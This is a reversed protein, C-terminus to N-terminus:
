LSIPESSLSSASKLGLSDNVVPSCCASAVCCISSQTLTREQSSLTWTLTCSKIFLSAAWVTAATVPFPSCVTVRQLFSKRYCHQFMGQCHVLDSCSVLYRRIYHPVTRPLGHLPLCFATTFPLGFM